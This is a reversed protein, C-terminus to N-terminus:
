SDAYLPLLVFSLVEYMWSVILYVRCAKGCFSPALNLPPRLSFAGCTIRLARAPFAEECRGQTGRTQGKHKDGADQRINSM